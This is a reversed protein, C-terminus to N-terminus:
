SGDREGRAYGIVVNGSWAEVDLEGEEDVIPFSISVRDREMSASPVPM